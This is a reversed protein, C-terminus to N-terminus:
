SNIQQAPRIGLDVLRRLYLIVTRVYEAHSWALPSASIHERTHPDLQEPLIGSPLANREVWNLGTRVLDLSADDSARAIDFQLFWLTTIIWPNGPVREVM